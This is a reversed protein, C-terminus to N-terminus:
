QVINSDQPHTSLVVFSLLRRALPFPVLGVPPQLLVNIVFALTALSENRDAYATPGSRRGVRLLIPGESIDILFAGAEAASNNIHNSTSSTIIGDRNGGRPQHPERQM